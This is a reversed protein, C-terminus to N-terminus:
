VYQPASIGLLTLGGALVTGAAEALALRARHAAGPKLGGLPLLGGTRDHLDLLADAVRVLRRALRDPARHEAARRLVAPHEALLALLPAAHPGSDGPEPAYGLAAANRVLALARSHAYRVLFLPNEVRQVLLAADLRPRDAPATHLLAWRRSEPDLPATQASPPAARLPEGHDTRVRVEGGQARTLRAVAEALVHARAGLPRLTVHHGALADGYRPALTEAVLDREYTGPDALAFNLFGPGTVRIDALRPDHRLRERLLAALALPSTRAAGAAVLAVNCAYDGYGGPRPVGVTVRALVDAAVSDVEGAAVARRLAGLVTRSLEAPTM